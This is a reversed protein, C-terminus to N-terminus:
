EGGQQQPIPPLDFWLKPASKPRGFGNRWQGAEDRIMYRHRGGGYVPIYKNTPADKIDKWELQAKLEKIRAKLAKNEKQFGQLAHNKCLVEGDTVIGCVLCTKNETIQESM